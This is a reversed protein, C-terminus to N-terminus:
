KKKQAADKGMTASCFAAGEGCLTCNHQMSDTTKGKVVKITGGCHGCAHKSGVDFWELHAKGAPGVWKTERVTVTKCASCVMVIADEPKVNAAEKATTVPKTMIEPAPGAIAFSGTAVLLFAFMLPRALWTLIPTKMLLHRPRNNKADHPVPCSAVRRPSVVGRVKRSIRAGEDDGIRADLSAARPSMSKWHAVKATPIQLEVALDEDSPSHWRPAGCAALKDMVHVPLRITKTQNALARKM